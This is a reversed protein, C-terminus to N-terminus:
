QALAEIVSHWKNFVHEDVDLRPSPQSPDDMRLLRRQDGKAVYLVRVDTDRMELARNVADSDSQVTVDGDGGRIRVWNGGPEFGVGIVKGIIESLYPLESVLEPLSVETLSVRRKEVGNTTLTYEQHTIAKPLSNLYKRVSEDILVGHSEKDIAELIQDTAQAPLNDFMLPIQMGPPPLQMQVLGQIGSSSALLSQVEIDIRNAESAFRGVSVAERALADRIINSAKRRIAMLLYHLPLGFSGLSLRHEMLGAVAGEWKIRLETSVPPRRDQHQVPQPVGDGGLDKNPIAHVVGTIRGHKDESLRRASSAALDLDM